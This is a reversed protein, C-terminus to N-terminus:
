QRKEKKLNKQPQKGKQPVKEKALNRNQEHFINLNQKKGTRLDYNPPIMSRLFTVPRNGCKVEVKRSDFNGIECSERVFPTKAAFASGSCLVAAALIIWNRM